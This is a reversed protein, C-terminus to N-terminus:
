NATAPKEIRTVTVAVVPNKALREAVRQVDALAVTDFAKQEEAASALKYTDADLWFEDLATKSRDSMVKIRAADFESGNIAKSLLLMVLNSPMPDGATTAGIVFSGPLIHAENSVFVSSAGTLNEKVRSEIISELLKAAAYDKEGRAVGRLAFRTHPATEASTTVTVMKTDPADPQKFTSPIMRDSKLWSGLYRRAARYALAPDIKGSISVTANDANLFRQKLDLVDAFNLKAVSEATGLEPRGYPFTGFLQKAAANDALYAPDAELGKVKALRSTVLKSTTEKDITPSSVATSVAELLTLFEDPKAWANIQIYDYNATVSLGGGLDEKFFTQSVETPFFSEALIAMAGEKGQPDFSTGSHIRVKIHVRDAAPDPWMLVKLGNLLKEQRPTATNQGFLPSAAALLFVLAAFNHVLSRTRM